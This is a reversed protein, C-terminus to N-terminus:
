PCKPFNTESDFTCSAGVLDEQITEPDNQYTSEEKGTAVGVQKLLREFVALAAEPKYFPMQHGSDYIRVFSYKGSQSAVGHVAGNATTVNEYGAKAFDHADILSAIAQGGIWNCNYDADGACHVVYVGQDVLRRNKEIINFNSANDGTTGFATAVTGTGLSTLYSFDTFAGIAEQIEPKNLYAVFDTPPLLGPVLTDYLYDVDDYCLNDAASCIDDIRRDNCDLFQDLCNGDGHLTDYMRQEMSENFPKFGFNNGPSVTFNYYAQFQILPDLWGNGVSLGRLDLTATGMPNKANQELVYNAFVPGHYGGYSESLHPHRQQRLMYIGKHLTQPAANPNSNATMSADSSSLTGCSNAPASDPCVAGPATKLEGDASTYADVPISYSLATTTPQELYLMNSANNWSYQNYRVSGNDDISCPGNSSFLGVMSTDGPDGNLRLTLPAEKPNDIYGSYLKVGEVTECIGSPDEKYQVTHGNGSTSILDAPAKVFQAAAVHLLALTQVTAMNRPEGALAGHCAM